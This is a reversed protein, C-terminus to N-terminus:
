SLKVEIETLTKKGLETLNGISSKFKKKNLIEKLYSVSFGSFTDTNAVPHGGSGFRNIISCILERQEQNFQLFHLTDVKKM